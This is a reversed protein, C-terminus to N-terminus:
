KKFLYFKTSRRFFTKSSTKKQLDDSFNKHLGKKKASCKRKHRQGQEQRRSPRDESPSGKAESNKQTGPRPRSGQTRSDVELKSYWCANEKKSSKHMISKEYIESVIAANKSFCSHGNKAVFLAIGKVTFAVDVYVVFM